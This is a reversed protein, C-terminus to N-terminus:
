GKGRGKIYLQPFLLKLGAAFIVGPVRLPFHRRMLLLNSYFDLGLPHVLTKLREKFTKKAFSAYVDDHDKTCTGCYEPAILIPIKRKMAKLTYDYDAVGHRYGDSLQGIEDVVEKTVMMINANGLECNQVQGNPILFSYKFLYRNEFRAGGYTFEGTQNDKTSGLYIGSSNYQELCTKHTNLLQDLSTKFLNTDDNLLLFADYKSRLATAWSQRMGGAWYLDGTGELITVEPFRKKVAPGTGDTSGDDTLYIDFTLNPHLSTAVKFHELASLTKEKRNFCTLLVAIQNVVFM